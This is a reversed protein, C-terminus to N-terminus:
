LKIADTAGGYADSRSRSLSSCDSQEWSLAVCGGGRQMAGGVTKRWTRRLEAGALRSVRMRVGGTSVRTQGGRGCPKERPSRGSRLLGRYLHRPPAGFIRGREVMGCAEGRDSMRRKM